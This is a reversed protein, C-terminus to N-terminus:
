NRQDASKIWQQFYDPYRWKFEPDNRYAADKYHKNVSDVEKTLRRLIEPDSLPDKTRKQWKSLEEKLKSFVDQYQSNGAINIFEYPDNKLDYLEYEPPERWVEYAKQIKGSFSKIEKVSTGGSFFGSQDAYFRFIPNEREPLLNHILKFRDNRISRKPYYFFAASGTGDAYIYQHGNASRPDLLFPMLSNGPLTSPIKQNAADLHTPVLDVMSVLEDSRISRKSKEPWKMILPVHLGAEYNSCKGRSFQPGHDGLYIILTNKYKGSQRLKDLLMGTAEDLRNMSNYYNATYKRLHESDAGIFPLPSDIDHARLPDKPMGEVQPQLPYHADPYNVMLFFPEESARMFTDAYEAYSPLNKKAFNSSKIPHFDFPIASEPNVHIKGLCGTRYGAEKMYVPLTKFSKYMKFKHTSLGIQGNQHPYLGTFITSRSPSCVSYTVFAREFLVGEKALNDLHPTSVYENGYCGLDPGNDESVILLINPKKEHNSRSDNTGFNCAHILITSVFLKLLLINKSTKYSIIMKKTKLNIKVMREKKNAGINAM